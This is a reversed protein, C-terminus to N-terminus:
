LLSNIVGTYSQAGVVGVRQWSEISLSQETAPALPAKLEILDKNSKGTGWPATFNWMSWLTWTYFSQITLDVRACKLCGRWLMNFFLSPSHATRYIYIYISIERSLNDLLFFRCSWIQWRELHKLTLQELQNAPDNQRWTGQRRHLRPPGPLEDHYFIHYTHPAQFIQWPTNLLHMITDIQKLLKTHHKYVCTREKQYLLVISPLNSLILYSFFRQSFWSIKSFILWTVSCLVVKQVVHYQQHFFDWVVVQSTDWVRTFLLIKVM